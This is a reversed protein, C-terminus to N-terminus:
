RRVLEVTARASSIGSTSPRFRGARAPTRSQFAPPAPLCHNRVIGLLERRSPMPRSLPSSASTLRVIARRRGARRRGARGRCPAASRLCARSCASCTTRGRCAPSPTLPRPGRRRKSAVRATVREAGCRSRRQALGGSRVALAGDRVAREVSGHCDSGGIRARMLRAGARGARRPLALRGAVDVYEEMSHLGAGGPGFLVSPIGASGSCRPM